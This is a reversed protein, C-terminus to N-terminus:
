YKVKGRRCFITYEVTGIELSTESILASELVERYSVQILVKYSIISSGRSCVLSCFNGSHQM